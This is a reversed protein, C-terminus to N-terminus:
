AKSALAASSRERGRRWVCCWHVLRRRSLSHPSTLSPGLAAVSRARVYRISTVGNAITVSELNTLQGLETPLRPLPEHVDAIQLHKLGSLLGIESPIGGSVYGAATAQNITIATVENDTCGILLDGAPRFYRSLSTDHTANAFLFHNHRVNTVAYRNLEDQSFTLRHYWPTDLRLHHELKDNFM